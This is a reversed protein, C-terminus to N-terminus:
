SKKVSKLNDILVGTAENHEDVKMEVAECRARIDSSINKRKMVSPIEVPPKREM